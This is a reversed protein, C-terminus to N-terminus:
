SYCKTPNKTKFDLGIETMREIIFLDFTEETSCQYKQNQPMFIMIKILHWFHKLKEHFNWFESKKFDFDFEADDFVGSVSVFEFYM